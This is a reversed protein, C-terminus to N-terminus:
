IANGPSLGHSAGGQFIFNKGTLIAGVLERKRRALLLEEGLFAERILRQATAIAALSPTRL